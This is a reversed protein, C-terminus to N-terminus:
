ADAHHEEGNLKANMDEEVLIVAGVNLRHRCFLRNTWQGDANARAQEDKRETREDDPSQTLQRDRSGVDEISGEYDEDDALDQDLRCAVGLVEDPRLAELMRGRPNV